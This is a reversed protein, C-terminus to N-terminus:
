CCATSVSFYVSTVFPWGEAYSFFASAMLHPPIAALMLHLMESSVSPAHGGQRLISRVSARRLDAIHQVVMATVGLSLFNLVATFLRSANSTPSIVIGVTTMVGTTAYISDIWSLGELQRFGLCGVLGLSLCITAAADLGWFRRHGHHGKQGM